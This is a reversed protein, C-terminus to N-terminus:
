RHSGAATPAPIALQRSRSAGMRQIALNPEKM